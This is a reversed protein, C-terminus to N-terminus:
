LFLYKRLLVKKYTLCKILIKVTKTKTFASTSVEFRRPYKYQKWPMFINHSLTMEKDKVKDEKLYHLQIEYLIKSRPQLIQLVIQSKFVIVRTSNITSSIKKNKKRKHILQRMSINTFCIFRIPTRKLNLRTKTPVYVISTHTFQFFIIRTYTLLFHFLQFTKHHPIICIVQGGCVIASKHIYQIPIKGRGFFFSVYM